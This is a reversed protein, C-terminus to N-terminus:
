GLRCCHCCQLRGAHWCALQQPAWGQRPLLPLPSSAPPQLPEAPRTGQHQLPLLGLLAARLLPLLPLVPPVLQLRQGQRTMQQALGALQPLLDRM